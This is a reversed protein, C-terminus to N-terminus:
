KSCPAISDFCFISCIRFTAFACRLMMSMSGPKMSLCYSQPPPSPSIERKLSRDNRTRVSSAHHRDIRVRQTFISLKQQMKQQVYVKHKEEVPTYEYMGSCTKSRVVYSSTRVYMIRRSRERFANIEHNHRARCVRNSELTKQNSTTPIRDEVFVPFIPRSRPCIQAFSTRVAIQAYVACIVHTKSSIKVLPGCSVYSSLAQRDKKTKKNKRM